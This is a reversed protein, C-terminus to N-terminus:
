RLVRCVRPEYVPDMLREIAVRDTLDPYVRGEREAKERRQRQKKVRERARLEDAKVGGLRRIRDKWKSM